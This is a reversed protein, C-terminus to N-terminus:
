KGNIMFLLCCSSCVNSILFVLLLCDHLYVIFWWLFLFVIQYYYLCVCVILCVCLFFLIFFAQLRMEIRFWPVTQRPLLPNTFFVGLNQMKKIVRENKLIKKCFNVPVHGVIYFYCCTFNSLVIIIPDSSINSKISPVQYRHRGAKNFCTHVSLKTCSSTIEM